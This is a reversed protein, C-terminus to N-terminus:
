APHAAHVLGDLRGQVTRDGELDEVGLVAVVLVGAELLAEEELGADGGLQAVGVGDGHDVVALRLIADVEDRHLVQLPLGEGLEQRRHPRQGPGAREVDGLLDGAREALRVLDAEDVPVQLGGVDHDEVLLRIM